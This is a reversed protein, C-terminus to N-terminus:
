FNALIELMLINFQLSNEGFFITSFLVFAEEEEKQQMSATKESMCDQQKKRPKGM